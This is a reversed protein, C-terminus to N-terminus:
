TADMDRPTAPLGKSAKFVFPFEQSCFERTLLPFEQYNWALQKNQDLLKQSPSFSDFRSSAIEFDSARAQELPTASGSQM